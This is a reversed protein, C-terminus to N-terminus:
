GLRGGTEPVIMSGAETQLMTCRMGYLREMLSADLVNGPAGFAAVSGGILALVDDAYWLAHQPNHTCLMVAYGESALGRVISLVHAQNGYDLSATPEDMLLTKARQALARAILVLQREGGSLRAFSKGSLQAVGLRDLAAMATETERKGPTSLSSVTHSTGMLVMDLVPYDFAQAHVQPIYAVRHALQKATLGGADAGDVLISGDYHKQLGLICGFLTTKGVGNPGLVAVLRGDDAHFSVDTLVRQRGYAFSVHSATVSM